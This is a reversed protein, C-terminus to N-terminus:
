ASKLYVSFTAGRGPESEVTIKGGGTKVIERVLYLGIGSGQVGNELRHYKSFILEHKDPAIGLGNDKVRIVSYGEEVVTTVLIIPAVGPAAYKIANNILNYLVSRLKRRSFYIETVHIDTRIVAGSQNIEESLSLRVDEMINEFSLREGAASYTHARQRSEFLENIITQMKLLSRDVMSLMSRFGDQEEPPINKLHEVALLVTTLSNKVDHSITDLLIEHDAILNEQEKLDTIRASIEVFTIIVGDSKGTMFNIYPLINMQYWRYDTTQIEKELIEHSEMVEQINALFNPFRFNDHVDAVPKGLDDASLNFQKMAPPTFKKLILNGDVFLQPIITNRFYNELENNKEILVNIQKKEDADEVNISKPTTFILRERKTWPKQDPIM